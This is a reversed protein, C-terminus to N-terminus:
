ELSSKTITQGLKKKPKPWYAGEYKRGIQSANRNTDYLASGIEEKVDKKFPRFRTSAHSPSYPNLWPTM